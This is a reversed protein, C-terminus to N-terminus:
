KFSESTARPSNSLAEKLNNRDNIIVEDDKMEKVIINVLQSRYSFMGEWNISYLSWQGEKKLILFGADYLATLGRSATSQTVDLAKMVECVCIEGNVLLCLIRLRTEDSLLGLTKVMTKM